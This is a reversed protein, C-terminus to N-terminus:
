KTQERHERQRCKHLYWNLTIIMIFCIVIIVSAYWGASEMDGGAVESYIALPLTRTRGLINGALMATAGFEGLARAFSLVGGSVLGPLANPLIIRWFIMWDTMGLSRGTLWLSPDIQDLAAKASKYMLPFSVVTATIVTAIWTFAIQLGFQEVFFRGVLRNSGLIYLLLFGVVTPPLVLPLTFIGDAIIKVVESKQQLVWWATLTGLFFVIIITTIATQLSIWLPSWNISTTEM